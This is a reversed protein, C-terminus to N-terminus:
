TSRGLRTAEVEDAVPPVGNCVNMMMKKFLEQDEHSLQEYMERWRPRSTCPNVMSAATSASLETEDVSSIPVVNQEPISGTVDSRRERLRKGVPQLLLIAVFGASSVALIEWFGVDEGSAFETWTSAVWCSGSLAILALVSASAGIM